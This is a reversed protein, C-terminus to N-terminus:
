LSLRGQADFTFSYDVVGNTVISVIAHEALPGTSAGMRIPRKKATPM